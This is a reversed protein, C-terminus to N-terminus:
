SSPAAGPRPAAPTELAGGKPHGGSRLPAQARLFEAGHRAAGLGRGRQAQRAGERAQRSSGEPAHAGDGDGREGGRLWGGLRERAGRAKARRSRRRGGRIFVHVDRTRVRRDGRRRPHRRPAPLRRARPSSSAATQRECPREERPSRVDARTSPRRGSPRPARPIRADRRHRGDGDNDVRASRYSGLAIRGPRHASDCHKRRRSDSSPM